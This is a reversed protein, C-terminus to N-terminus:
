PSPRSLTLAQPPMLAEFAAGISLVLADAHPGAAIQMGVPLGGPSSGCPISVAPLGTLNYPALYDMEDFWEGGEPAAEEVPAVGFLSPSLIADVRELASLFRGGLYRRFQQARVYAAAPIAFGLELRFRTEEAYDGAREAIRGAHVVSAEPAMVNVQAGCAHALEPIHTRTLVAGAGALAACAAEFAAAVEASVRPAAPDPELIGLRLGRLTCPDAAFRTGTMAGLMLAADACTRAMPGAHDLSGSLPFVGDVDVLGYTPKLGVIGCCAAPSRISGGTDTGVAAYCMGAAVAAASGGSSGSASRTADWPNNTRGFDPHPVWYAFELLNTKGVIVAGAEVLNGVLRADKKAAGGSMAASGCTTPVGAVDILDKLGIPIGHLPGRDHGAKLAREATVADSLARDRLVAIFANLDGDHADIRDLCLCTVEVPSLTGARYRAGVEEISAHLVADDDM